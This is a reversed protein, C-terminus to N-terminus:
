LEAAFDPHNLKRGIREKTQNSQVFQHHNGSLRVWAHPSLDIGKPNFICLWATKSALFPEFRNVPESVISAATSQLEIHNSLQSEFRPSLETPPSVPEIFTEANFGHVQFATETWLLHSLGQLDAFRRDLSPAIPTHDSGVAREPPMTPNRQFM